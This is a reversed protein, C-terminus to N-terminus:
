IASTHLLPLKLRKIDTKELPQQLYTAPGNSLSGFWLRDINCTGLIYRHGHLETTAETKKTLFLSFAKTTELLSEGVSKM